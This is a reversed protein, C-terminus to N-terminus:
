RQLNNLADLVDLISLGSGLLQNVGDAFADVQDDHAHTDDQTFSSLEMLFESVWPNSEERPIYVMGSDVFALIDNIRSGKDKVRVLGTTPIGIEGLSQMIGPGSGAEEIMFRSVPFDKQEECHKRYFVAATRVFEPLTWKGRIQDLLYAKGRHKAWCQIVYWDNGQGKKIATDCTMIKDEWELLENDHRRLSEVQILNGGQAVPEQQYQSALVYRGVRTNKLGLLTDTSITEPITSIDNVLAPFKLLLCQNPYTSLLYGCLDDPSLRQANIIIPCYRDSNRRNKLTTEIWQRVEASRNKSLADDPKAPDDVGIIGGAPRKLGGGKGTITGQTGQAYINGDFVTTIKDARKSDLLNGFLSVYWDREMVKGVYDLNVQAIDASYSCHIIQSDPFYGIGWTYCAELIKTKGTRPAINIIVYQIHSPLLGLYADQLTDCISKHFPKLPLQIKNEPIFVESFYTWLSIFEKEIDGPTDVVELLNNNNKQIM